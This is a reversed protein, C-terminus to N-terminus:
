KLMALAAATVVQEANGWDVVETNSPASGPRPWYRRGGARWTGDPRRQEDLLALADVNAQGIGV